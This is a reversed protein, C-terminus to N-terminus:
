RAMKATKTKKAASNKKVEAVFQDGRDFENVFLGFSACGPSLLVIDGKKAAKAALRVAEPMSSVRSVAARVGAIRFAAEMKPTATGDFLIVKKAALKVEAAWDEFHLEKDNGGSILIVNKSRGGLARLAAVSADPATAATDNVYRVGGKVAVTELRGAVGKFARIVSRLAADPVGLSAGAAVAALVNMVNHEGPVRIDAVAAVVRESGRQRVVIKNDRLFCADGDGYPQRGFWVVKAKARTGIDRVRADDANLVAIDGASQFAVILEKARAYDDMGCYRNLHDEMVNTIVALRPSVGHRELGELQWSSLELVVPPARRELKVLADLEDLPSVRINGAVVTRPDRKRCMEVLLSTSTTKGKTGTVGAIASPCLKFFLGIDTDVAAGSMAALALYPHERPVGPNQIVLDASVFDAPDHRGLVYRVRHVKGKGLTQRDQLFGRELEEIPKTLAFRDKLDTVTVIAGRRRLWKAVGLGGGHLGLGMVTVKKDQFWAPSM